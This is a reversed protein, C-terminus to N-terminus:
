EKSLICKLSYVLNYERQVLQGGSCAITNREKDHELFYQIKTILESTGTYVDFHVGPTLKMGCANQNDSLLFNNNGMVEFTRCNFCTQGEIHINLNIKSRKYCEIVDEPLLVKNEIFKSLYPYKYRFKFKGIVRQHWHHSHWARGLVVMKYGKEYTLKAVSELINLRKKSGAITGIFFIDIDQADSEKRPNDYFQPGAYLPMYNAEISYKQQLQVVDQYEFSYVKSYLRIHDGLTDLDYMTDWIWLRCEVRESIEKNIFVSKDKFRFDNLFLVIDINHREIFKLLRQRENEVKKHFELEFIYTDNGLSANAQILNESFVMNNRPGNVMCVRM